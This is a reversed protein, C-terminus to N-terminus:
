DCVRAFSPYAPGGSRVFRCNRGDAYSGPYANDYYGYGGSHYPQENIGVPPGYGTRAGAGQNGQIGGGGRALAESGVAITLLAAAIALTRKTGNVRPM